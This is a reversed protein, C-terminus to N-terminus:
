GGGGGSGLGRIRKFPRACEKWVRKFLQPQDRGFLGAEDASRFQAELSRRALERVEYRAYVSWRLSQPVRGEREPFVVVNAAVAEERVPVLLADVPVIDFADLLLLDRAGVPEGPLASLVQRELGLLGESEGVRELVLEHEGIRGLLNSASLVKESITILGHHELSWLATALCQLQVNVIHVLRLSTPTILATEGFIRHSWGMPRVFRDAFLYTLCSASVESPYEFGQSGGMSFGQYDSM